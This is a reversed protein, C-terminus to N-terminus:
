DKKENYFDMQEQAGAELYEELFAEWNKDSLLKEGSIFDDVWKDKVATMAAYTKSDSWGNDEFPNSLIDGYDLLSSYWSAATESYEPTKIVECNTIINRIENYTQLGEISGDAKYKWGESEYAAYDPVVSQGDATYHVGEIGNSVLNKGEETFIFECMDLIRAPDEFYISIVNASPNNKDTFRTTGGPGTMGVPLPELYGDPINEKLEANLIPLNAIETAM